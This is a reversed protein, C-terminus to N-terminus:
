LILVTFAVRGRIVRLNFCPRIDLQAHHFTACMTQGQKNRPPHSVAPRTVFRHHTCANTNCKASTPCGSCTSRHTSCM